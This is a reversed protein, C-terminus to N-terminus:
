ISVQSGGGKYANMSALKVVSKIRSPTDAPRVTIEKLQGLPVVLSVHGNEFHTSGCNDFSYHVTM